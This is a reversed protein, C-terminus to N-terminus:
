PRKYDALYAAVRKGDGEDITAGYVDRMKIVTADWFARDRNPPQNTVYDLSHCASCQAHVLEADPRAPLKVQPESPLRYVRRDAAATSLLAAPIALILLARKM